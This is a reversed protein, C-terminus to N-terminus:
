SKPNLIEITRQTKSTHRFRIWVAGQPILKKIRDAWEIVIIADRDRFTAPLNCHRAARWREIRYADVHVFHRFPRQRPPLRYRKVLVFTPSQVRERIGLSRALGQVFTTKGSGLEGALAFVIPRRRGRRTARLLTAAFRATDRAAASRYPRM